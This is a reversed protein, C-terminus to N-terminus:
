RGRQERSACANVTRSESSANVPCFLLAAVPAPGEDHPAVLTFDRQYHPTEIEPALHVSQGSAFGAESLAADEIGAIIFLLEVFEPVLFIDGVAVLDLRREQITGPRGRHCRSWVAGELAAEETARGAPCGRGHGGRGDGPGGPRVTRGDGGGRWDTGQVALATRSRAAEGDASAPRGGSGPSEGGDARQEDPAAGSEESSSHAAGTPEGDDKSTGTAGPDDPGTTM